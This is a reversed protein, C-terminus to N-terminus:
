GGRPADDTPPLAGTMHLMEGRTRGGAGRLADVLAADDECLLAVSRDASRAHPRMGELLARALPPRIVRFLMAGPFRPDFCALGPSSADPAVLQLLVHGRARLTSLRGAPLDFASTLAHDHQPEVPGAVVEVPDRPLRAVDTWDISLSTSRHAVRMGTSEYLAIAPVNDLKVNLAWRVCGARRLREATERLIARGVGRGRWGRDTAVHVVHGTQGLARAVGYGVVATGHTVFFTSPMWETEWRAAPPPPEDPPLALEAVLRLYHEYDAPEASRVETGIPASM